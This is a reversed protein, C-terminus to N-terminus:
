KLILIFCKQSFKERFSTKRTISIIVKRPPRVLVNALGVADPRVRRVLELADEEDGDSEALFGDDFDYDDLRPRKKMAMRREAMGAASYDGGGSSRAAPAGYFSGRAPPASSRHPPPAGSRSREREDVPRVRASTSVQM